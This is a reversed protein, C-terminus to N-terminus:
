YPIAWLARLIMAVSASFAVMIAEGAFLGAAAIFRHKHYWEDGFMRRLALGALLGVLVGMANPLPLAFGLGLGALSFPIHLLDFLISIAGASVLSGLLLVPRTIEVSRTVFLGTYVAAVSILPMPFFSSPMPALTWFASIYIFGLIWSLPYVILFYMKILTWPNMKTLRAVKFWQAWIAGTPNNEVAWMGITGSYAILPAFWVSTGSYGSASFIWEKVFPVTVLTGSEGLVKGAILTAVFNWGVTFLIFIWLPFDPVFIHAIFASSLTTGLFIILITKLSLSWSERMTPKALARIAGILSRPRRLLPIIATATLVGIIPSAWFSDRICMESGM